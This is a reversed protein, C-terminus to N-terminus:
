GECLREDPRDVRLHLTWRRVHLEHATAVPGGDHRRQDCRSPDEVDQRVLVGARLRRSELRLVFLVEARASRAAANTSRPYPISASRTKASQQSLPWCRKMRATLSQM